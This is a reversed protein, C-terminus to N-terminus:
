TILPQARHHCNTTFLSKRGTYLQCVSCFEARLAVRLTNSSIDVHRTMRQKCDHLRAVCRQCVTVCRVKNLAFVYLSTSFSSPDRMVGRTVHMKQRFTVWRVHPMPCALVHELRAHRVVAEPVHTCVQRTCGPYPSLAGRTYTL